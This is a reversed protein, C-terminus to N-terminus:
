GGQGKGGWPRRGTHVLQLTARMDHQYAPSVARRDGLTGVAAQPSIAAARGVM